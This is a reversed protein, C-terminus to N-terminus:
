FHGDPKNPQLTVATKGADAGERFARDRYEGDTHTALYYDFKALRWDADYSNPDAAAAQRLLVLGQELQRLDDREAYLQDAQSILLPASERNTSLSATARPHVRCGLSTLLIIGALSITMRSRTSM